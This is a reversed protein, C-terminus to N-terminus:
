SVGPAGYVREVEAAVTPTASGGCEAIELHEIQIGDYPQGALVVALLDDDDPRRHAPEDRKTM